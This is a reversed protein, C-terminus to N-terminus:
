QNLRTQIHHIVEHISRLDAATQGPQQALQTFFSLAERLKGLYFCDLGACYLALSNDPASSLCSTAHQLSVAYESRSLYIQSLKLHAQAQNESTLGLPANLAQEFASIARQPQNLAKLTVGLQYRLYADQPSALVSKELLELNRRARSQGQAEKYLYGYHLLILSSDEIKGGTKIISPSVQEHILGEYQYDPNRRFLRTISLDQWPILEGPSQLNRQILRYGAVTSNQVLPRLQARSEAALEEDADMVLSWDSTAQALSANRAASFDGPWHIEVVHAGFDLAIRCSEDQSGTDVFIIEDVVERVSRLCRPLNAAEDRAIMCLSILSSM